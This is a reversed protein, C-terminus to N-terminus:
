DTCLLGTALFLFVALKGAVGPFRYFHTDVLGFAGAELDVPLVAV